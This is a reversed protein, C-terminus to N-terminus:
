PPLGALWTNLEHVSHGLLMEVVNDARNEDVEMTLVVLATVFVYAKGSANLTKWKYQDVGVVRIHDLM